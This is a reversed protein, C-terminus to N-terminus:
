FLLDQESDFILKVQKADQRWFHAEFETDELSHGDKIMKDMVKDTCIDTQFHILNHHIGIPEISQMISNHSSKDSHQRTIYLPLEIFAMISATTTDPAKGVLTFKDGAKRLTTYYMEMLM